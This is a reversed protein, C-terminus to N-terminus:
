RKNLINEFVVEFKRRLANKCCVEYQYKEHFTVRHVFIMWVKKKNTKCIVNSINHYLNQITM